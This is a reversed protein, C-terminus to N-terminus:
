IYETAAQPQPVDCRPKVHRFFAGSTNRGSVMLMSVCATDWGPSKILKTELIDERAVKRSRDFVTVLKELILSNDQLQCVFV